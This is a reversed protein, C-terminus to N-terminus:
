KDTGQQAKTFDRMNLLSVMQEKLGIMEEKLEKLEEEMKRRWAREERRQIQMGLSSEMTSPRLEIFKNLEVLVDLNKKEFALSEATWGNKYHHGGEVEQGHLTSKPDM